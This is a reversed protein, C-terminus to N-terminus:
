LLESFAAHNCKPHWNMAAVPQLGPSWPLIGNTTPAEPSRLTLAPFAQQKLSHANCKPPVGGKSPAPHTHYAQFQTVDSLMVGTLTSPNNLASQCVTHPASLQFNRTIPRIMFHKPQPPLLSKAEQILCMSVVKGWIGRYPLM